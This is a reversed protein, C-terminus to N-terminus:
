GPYYGPYGMQVFLIFIYTLWAAIRWAKHLRKTRPPLSANLTQPAPLSVGAVNTVFQCCFISQCNIRLLFALHDKWSFIIHKGGVQPFSGLKVVRQYVLMAPQFIGIKLLFYMKMEPGNELWSSPVRGLAYRGVFLRILLRHGIPFTKYLLRWIIPISYLIQQPRAPNAKM